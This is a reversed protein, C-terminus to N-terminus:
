KIETIFKNESYYKEKGKINDFDLKILTDLNKRKINILLSERKKTITDGVKIFDFLESSQFVFDKKNDGFIQNRIIIIPIAHNQKDIYKETVLGEYNSHYEDYVIKDFFEKQTLNDCSNLGFTLVFLLFAIKNNM